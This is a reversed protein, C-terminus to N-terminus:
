ALKIIVKNPEVLEELSEIRQGGSMFQGNRIMMKARKLGIGLAKLYEFASVMERTKIYRLDIVDSGDDFIGEKELYADLPRNM